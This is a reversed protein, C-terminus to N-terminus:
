SNSTAALCDRFPQAWAKTPRTFSDRAPSVEELMRVGLYSSSGSGPTGYALTGPARVGIAVLDALSNAPVSPHVTIVLPSIVGPAVPVFDTEANYSLNKHPYPNIIM